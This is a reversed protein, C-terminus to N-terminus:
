GGLYVVLVLAVQVLQLLAMLSISQRFISLFLSSLTAKFIPYGRNWCYFMFAISSLSGFVYSSVFLRASTVPDTVIVVCFYLNVFLFDFLILCALSVNIPNLIRNWDLTARNEKYLIIVFAIVQLAFISITLGFSTLNLGAESNTQTNTNNSSNGM